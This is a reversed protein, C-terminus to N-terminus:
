SAQQERKRKVEDKRSDELSKLYNDDVATPYEGNFISIEFSTINPNGEQVTSVLDDLEQYVLWDAGIEKCVEEETKNSAVLEDTAAMDIGYLNQFKIPPAASAFFVAKAGADRAMKIIKKSTTGRVISDDVLLVNKDKFELELINLKRRVSKKREDQYPMIFTRGIYRNKVFGERYPVGLANALQLAALTSSDPIPIVVDIDLNKKNRLINSALKQGMRMRSKYVSIEDLTSDPRSLYVYEFICPTAVANQSCQNSFFEGKKNIFVAEGPNVDRLRTFGRSAFVANESAVIYEDKEKGERKGIVLPRIGKPDRFALIGAGTILAVVAYAGDCRVHVKSVAKFLNEPSPIIAKQKGLEHAFINLLVESDSDTNLHRM